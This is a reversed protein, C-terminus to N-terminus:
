RYQGRSTYLHSETENMVESRSDNPANWTRNAITENGSDQRATAVVLKGSHVGKVGCLQSALTKLRGPSGKLIIVELSTNSDLHVRTTSVVLDLQAHQLETLRQGLKACSYHWVLTVTAVAECPEMCWASATLTERFLQRCGDSRSAFRREECLRDIAELLDSEISISWGCWLPCKRERRVLSGHILESALHIAPCLLEPM